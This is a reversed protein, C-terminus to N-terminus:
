ASAGMLKSMESGLSAAQQKANLSENWRYRPDNRVTVVWQDTSMPAGNAGTLMKTWKPDAPNMQESPIGLENSAIELFPSIYDHVTQGADLQKAISPYMTKAQERFRDEFDGPQATGALVQRIYKTETAPSLTIGYAYAQSKLAAEAGAATGTLASGAGPLSFEKALVAAQESATSGNVVFQKAYRAADGKDLRIGLAAAQQAISGQAEALKRKAEGPNEASLVDWQRQSDTRSRWWKTEKIEAQARQQTYGQAVARKIVAAVDPHERLFAKVYGYDEASGQATQDTKTTAVQAGSEGLYKTYAGSKYTSWPQWNKGGGSMRFAVKANTLPDLLDDNSSLGYQKLRAPGMDGLMNIQFLGYSKDGTKANGNFAGARGGSEAMAVAYATQLARGRFGAQKLIHMLDAM